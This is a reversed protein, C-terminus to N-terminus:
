EGDGAHSLGHGHCRLTTPLSVASEDRRRIGSLNVDVLRNSRAPKASRLLRLYLGLCALYVVLEALGWYIKREFRPLVDVLARDHQLWMVAAVGIGMLSGLLLAGISIWVLSRLMFLAPSDNEHRTQWQLLLCLLPLASALNMCILHGALVISVVFETLITNVFAYKILRDDWARPLVRGIRQERSRWSPQQAM